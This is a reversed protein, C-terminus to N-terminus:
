AFTEWATEAVEIRAIFKRGEYGWWHSDRTICGRAAGANAFPGYISTSYTASNDALRREVVVRFIQDSNGKFTRSM